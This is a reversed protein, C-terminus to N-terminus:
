TPVHQWPITEGALFPVLEEDGFDIKAPITTARKRLIFKEQNYPLGYFNAGFQSTFGELKDLRQAKEFIQAYMEIAGIHNYIGACGCASEKQSKPHPASDTGIFFRPNGSTAAKILAEQHGKRKLIPLCYHHPRAGGAFMANRNLMLHHPTITAALTQPGSEIFTVAELTTIHELVIKLGPFQKALPILHRDIFVRERDFIDIDPDNVEGHIQLPIQHKEMAAFAPYLNNLQTVGAQSHTTVGAPYLKCGYIFQSQKAEHIIQPTTKDTLYLTMLPTFHTGKPIYGQIRQLYDQAMAVTTVPTKLNPMVIVRKFSKAAMKVTTALYAGDRLHCHWDDPYIIEIEQM